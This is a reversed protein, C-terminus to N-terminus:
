NLRADGPQLWPLRTDVPQLWHLIADRPQTLTYYDDIMSDCNGVTNNCKRCHWFRMALHHSKHDIYHIGM